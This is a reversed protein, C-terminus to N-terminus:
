RHAAVHDAYGSPASLSVEDGPRGSGQAGAAGSRLRRDRASSLGAAACGAGVGNELQAGDPQGADLRSHVGDGAKIAGVRAPAAAAAGAWPRRAAGGWGAPEAPSRPNGAEPPAELFVAHLHEVPAGAAAFPNQEILSEIEALTRLVVPVAFGFRAGIAAAIAASTLSAPATCVANGSQIYTAVATCGLETFVARLGAMPVSHRGGVNIGRLLALTRVAPKAHTRIGGSSAGASRTCSAWRASSSM